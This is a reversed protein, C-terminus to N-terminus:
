KLKGILPKLTQADIRRLTFWSASMLEAMEQLSWRQWNDYPAAILKGTLGGSRESALFVVLEAALEASVGGEGRERLSRIRDILPGAQDGASLVADQLHTDVMGPAVANIQVNYEKVEEAITETFRVVGAKAAGYASFRALPATAGGGSFNVIKGRRRQIMEALVAHCCLFTGVLNVHLAGIWAEVDVEWAPGIPGYTGAANVLIDVPGFVDHALQVIRRVDHVNAVDASIIEAAGGQARVRQQVTRLEAETRAALVLRAGEHAFKLAIAEGIGRGGGTIVAVRDLLKM